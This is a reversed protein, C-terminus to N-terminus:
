GLIRRKCDLCAVLSKEKRVSASFSTSGFSRRFYWSSIYNPDMIFETSRKM